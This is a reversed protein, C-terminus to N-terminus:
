IHYEKYNLKGDYYNEYYGYIKGNNYYCKYAIKNNFYYRQWLGHQQGKENYQNM